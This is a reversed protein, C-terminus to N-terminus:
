SISSHLRKKTVVILLRSSNVAELFRAAKNL